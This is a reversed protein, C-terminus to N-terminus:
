VSKRGHVTVFAFLIVAAIAMVLPTAAFGPAAGGATQAGTMMDGSIAFDTLHNTVATYYVYDSDEDILFTPLSTWNGDDYRYLKVTAQDIFNSNLWSKTVSFGITVNVVNGMALNGATINLYAYDATGPSDAIVYAPKEWLKSVTIVVNGMSSNVELDIGDVIVSDGNFDFSNEGATVNKTVNQRAAFTCDFYDRGPVPWGDSCNTAAMFRNGGGSNLSSEFCSFDYYGYTYISRWYKLDERTNFCAKTNEIVNNPSRSIGIGEYVNSNFESNMIRNGSSQFLRLGGQSNYDSTVNMLTNGNSGLQLWIGYGNSNAIIDSLTNGSSADLTIGQGNTNVATMKSLTNSVSNILLIGFSRSSNVRNNTLVNGSSSKMYIGEANSEFSNGEARVGSASYIYLGYGQGNLTNNLIVSNNAGSLEVGKGYRGNPVWIEYNEGMDIRCNKVTTGPQSSYVGAVDDDSIISHGQCDLTIGLAAISLCPGTLNNDILDGNLVYAMGPQDLLMCGGIPISNTCYGESCMKPTCTYKTYGIKSNSCSFEVLDNQDLCYDARGINLGFYSKNFYVMGYTDPNMGMDTDNICTLEQCQGNECLQDLDCYQFVDSDTYPKCYSSLSRPNECTYSTYNNKVIQGSLDCYNGGVWTGNGCDETYNCEVHPRIGCQLIRRSIVLNTNQTLADSPIEVSFNRDMSSINGGSPGVISIVTDSDTYNCRAGIYDDEYRFFQPASSDNISKNDYLMTISVSKDFVTDSPGFFYAPGDLSCNGLSCVTARVLYTSPKSTETKAKGGQADKGGEEGGPCCKQLDEFLKKNFNNEKTKIEFDKGAKPDNSLDIMIGNLLKIAGAKNDVKKILTKGGSKKEWVWDPGLWGWKKHDTWKDISWETTLTFTDCELKIFIKMNFDDALPFGIVPRNEMPNVGDLIAPAPTTYGDPNDHTFIPIYQKLDDPSIGVDGGMKKVNQYAADFFMNKGKIEVTGSFQPWGCCKEDPGIKTTIPKIDISMEGAALIDHLSVIKFKYSGLDYTGPKCCTGDQCRDNSVWCTTSTGLHACPFFTTGSEGNGCYDPCFGNGPSIVKGALTMETALEKCKGVFKLKNCNVEAALVPTVPLMLIIFTVLLILFARSFLQGKM